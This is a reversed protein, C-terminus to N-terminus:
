AFIGKKGFNKFIHLSRDNQAQKKAKKLLILFYICIQIPKVLKCTTKIIENLLNNFISWKLAIPFNNLIVEGIQITFFWCWCRLGFKRAYFTAKKHLNSHDYLMWFSRTWIKHGNSILLFVYFHCSVLEGAHKYPSHIPFFKLVWNILYKQM